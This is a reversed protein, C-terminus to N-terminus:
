DFAQIYQIVASAKKAPKPRGPSDPKILSAIHKMPCEWNVPPNNNSRYPNELHQMNRTPM